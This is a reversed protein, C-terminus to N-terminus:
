SGVLSQHPHPALLIVGGHDVLIGQEIAGKVVRRQYSVRAVNDVTHLGLVSIVPCLFRPHLRLHALVPEHSDEDRYQNNGNDTPHEDALPLLSLPLSLPSLYHPLVGLISHQSIHVLLSVM